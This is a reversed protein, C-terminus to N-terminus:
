CLSRGRKSVFRGRSMEDFFEVNFAIVKAGAMTLNRILEAHYSRPFPWNMGLEQQSQDDIAVIVVNPDPPEPGRYRFRFDYSAWEMRDFAGFLLLAVTLITAGSSVILNAINRKAEKTM